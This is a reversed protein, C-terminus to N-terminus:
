FRRAGCTARRARAEDGDEDPLEGRRREGRRRSGGCSVVEM